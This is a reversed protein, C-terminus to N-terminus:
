TLIDIAKDIEKQADDDLTEIGDLIIIASYALDILRDKEETAEDFDRQLEELEEENNDIDFCDDIMHEWKNRRMHEAMEKLLSSFELETLSQIKKILIWEQKINIM